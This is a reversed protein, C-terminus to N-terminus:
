AFSLPRGHVDREAPSADPPLEADFVFLLRQPEPQSAAHHLLLAFHDPTDDALNM